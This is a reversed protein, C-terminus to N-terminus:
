VLTIKIKRPSNEFTLDDFQGTFDHFCIEESDSVGGPIYFFGEEQVPKNLFITLMQSKDRAIWLYNTKEDVSSNM